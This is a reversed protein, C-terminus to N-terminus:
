AETKVEEGKAKSECGPAPEAAKPIFPMILPLLTQIFIAFNKLFSGDGPFLKGVGDPGGVEKEKAKCTEELKKCCAMLKQGQEINAPSSQMTPRQKGKWLAICEQQVPITDEWATAFDGKSADSIAAEVQGIMEILQM